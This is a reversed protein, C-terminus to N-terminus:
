SATMVLVEAPASGCAQHLPSRGRPGRSGINHLLNIHGDCLFFECPHDVVGQEPGLRGPLFQFLEASLGDRKVELRNAYVGDVHGIGCDQEFALLGEDARHYTERESSM